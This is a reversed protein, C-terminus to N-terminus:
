PVLRTPTAVPLVSIFSVWGSRVSASSPSARKLAISARIRSHAGSASTIPTGKWGSPASCSL